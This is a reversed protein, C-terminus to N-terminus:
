FKFTFGLSLKKNDRIPTEDTINYNGFSYEVYVGLRKFIYFSLGNGIGYESYHGRWQNDKPSTIYRGGYKLTIYYDFRFDDSKVFFPLVHVNVNLGYSPMAYNYISASTVRGMSDFTMETYVDVPSYGLYVGAEIYNSFGYNAEAHLNGAYVGKPVGTVGSNNRSFGTKINWRSKIYSDQGFTNNSIFFSFFLALSIKILYNKIKM